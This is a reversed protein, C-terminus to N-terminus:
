GGVLNTSDATPCSELIKRDLEKLYRLRERLTTRKSNLCTSVEILNVPDKELGECNIKSVEKGIKTATSRNGGCLAKLREGSSVKNEEDSM